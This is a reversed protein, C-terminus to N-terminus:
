WLGAQGLAQRVQLREPSNLRLLAVTVRGIQSVPVVRPGEARFHEAWLHVRPNFLPVIQGNESDVSAVNPGKRRNCHFCAFALNDMSTKGQHQEAIVHDAEHPWLVATDPVLCYECRGQARQEVARRLSASIKEGSM